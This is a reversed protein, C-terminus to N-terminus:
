STVLLWAEVLEVGLLMEKCIVKKNSKNLLTKVTSLLFDMSKIFARREMNPSQLNVQLKDVTDTHLILNSDVDM